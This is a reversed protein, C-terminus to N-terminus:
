KTKETEEDGAGGAEESRSQNWKWKGKEAQKRMWSALWHELQNVKKRPTKEHGHNKEHEERWQVRYNVMHHPLQARM